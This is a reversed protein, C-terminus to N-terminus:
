FHVRLFPKSEWVVRGKKNIYMAKLMKGEPVYVMALEGEFAMASEYQGPIVVSGKQNIYGWKGDEFEVNALGSCFSHATRYQPPIKWTGDKGLFGFRGSPFDEAAAMGERFRDGTYIRTQTIPKGTRDIYTYDSSDIQVFAIGESFDSTSEFQPTIEWWGDKNVYGYMGYMRSVTVGAVFLRPPQTNFINKVTGSKDIYTWHDRLKVSALGDSFRTAEQYGAPIVVKGQDDIYGWLAGKKFAAFHESFSGFEDADL